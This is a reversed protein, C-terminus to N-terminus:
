APRSIKLTLLRSKGNTVTLAPPASVMADLNQLNKISRSSRAQNVKIQNSAPEPSFAPGADILSGARMYAIYTKAIM